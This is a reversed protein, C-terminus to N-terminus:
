EDREVVRTYADDELTHIEAARADFNWPERPFTGSLREITFLINTVYFERAGSSYLRHGLRLIKSVWLSETFTSGDRSEAM